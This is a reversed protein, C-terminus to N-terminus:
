CNINISMSAGNYVISRNIGAMRLFPVALESGGFVADLSCLRCSLMCVCLLISYSLNAPTYLVRVYRFTPSFPDASASSYRAVHGM